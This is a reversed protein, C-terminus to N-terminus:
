IRHTIGVRALTEFFSAPLATGKYTYSQLFLSAMSEWNNAFQWVAQVQTTWKTGRAKGNVTNNLRSIITNVSWKGRAPKWRYLLSLTHNLNTATIPSIGTKTAFRSWAIGTEHTKVHIRYGASIGNSISSGKGGGPFVSQMTYQTIAPMFKHTVAGRKLTLIGTLNSQTVTTTRGGPELPKDTVSPQYRFGATFQLFNWLSITQRTSMDPTKSYLVTNRGSYNIGRFALENQMIWRNKWTSLRHQLLLEALDGPLFPQALNKFNKDTRRLTVFLSQKQINLQATLLAAYGPKAAVQNLGFFNSGVILKNASFYSQVIEGYLQLKKITMRNFVGTSLSRQPLRFAPLASLTATKDDGMLFSLGTEANMHRVHWHNQFAAGYLMRRWMGNQGNYTTNPITTNLMQVSSKAMWNASKWQLAMGLGPQSSGTLQLYPETFSGLRMSFRGREPALFLRNVPNAIYDLFQTSKPGEVPFNVVSYPMMRTLYVQMPVQWKGKRLMLFARLAPISAPQRQTVPVTGKASLNYYQYELSINGQVAKQTLGKEPWLITLLFVTLYPVPLRM